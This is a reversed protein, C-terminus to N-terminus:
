NLNQRQQKLIDKAKKGYEDYLKKFNTKEPRGYETFRIIILIQICIHM